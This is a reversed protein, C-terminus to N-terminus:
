SHENLSNTECACGIGYTARCRGCIANNCISCWLGREDWEIKSRELTCVECRKMTFDEHILFHPMFDNTLFYQVEDHTFQWAFVKVQSRTDSINRYLSAANRHVACAQMETWHIELLLRIRVRQQITITKDAVVNEANKSAASFEYEM